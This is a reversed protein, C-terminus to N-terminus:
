KTRKGMTGDDQRRWLAQKLWSSTAAAIEVLEKQPNKYLITNAFHLHLIYNQKENCNRKCSLKCAYVMYEYTGILIHTYICIKKHM